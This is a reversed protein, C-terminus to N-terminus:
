LGIADQVWLSSSPQGIDLQLFETRMCPFRRSPSGDWLLCRRQQLAPTCNWLQHWRVTYPQEEWFVLWMRRFSIM